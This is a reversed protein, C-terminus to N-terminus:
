VCERGCAGETYNDRFFDLLLNTIEVKIASLAPHTTTNIGEITTVLGVLPTNITTINVDDELSCVIDMSVNVGKDCRNPLINFTRNYMFNIITKDESWSVNHKLRTELYNFPGVLELHPKEKLFQVGVPNTVNYMYFTMYMPTQTSNSWISYFLSTNSDTVVDKAIESTLVTDIVPEAIFGIILFFLGLVGMTVAAGKASCCKRRCM